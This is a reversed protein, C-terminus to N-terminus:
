LTVAALTAKGAQKAGATVGRTATTNVVTQVPKLLYLGGAILVLGLVIYVVQTLSFGFLTKELAAEGGASINGPGGLVSGSYADNFIGKVSDWVSGAQVQTGDAPIPQAGVAALQANAADIVSQPSKASVTGYHALMASYDGYQKYLQADYAAAGYISSVPDNVDVHMAAATSPIFQGIGAAGSKANYAAPDWSSEQGLQWQFLEVPLGYQQAAQAAVPAYLESKAM